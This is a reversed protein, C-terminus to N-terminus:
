ELHPYNSRWQKGYVEEMLAIENKEMDEEALGSRLQIHLYNAADQMPVPINNLIKSEEFDITGYMEEGIKKYREREEVPMAKLAALIMPNNFLDNGVKEKKGEEVSSSRVNGNLLSHIDNKSLM